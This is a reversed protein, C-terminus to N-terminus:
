SESHTFKPSSGDLSLPRPEFSVTNKLLPLLLESIALGQDHQDVATTRVGRVEVILKMRLHADGHLLAYVSISDLIGSDKLLDPKSTKFM